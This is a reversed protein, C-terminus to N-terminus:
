GDLVVALAGGGLGLLVPGLELVAVAVSGGGGGAWCSCGVPGGGLFRGVFGGGIM